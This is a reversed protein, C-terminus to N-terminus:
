DTELVLKIDLLGIPKWTEVGIPKLTLTQIGAQNVQFRGIPVTAFEEWSGTRTSRTEIRQDGLSVAFPTAQDASSVRATARYAGKKPINVSWSIWDDASRWYGISPKDAKQKQEVRPSSGHIEADAANLLLVGAEDAEVAYLFEGPEFARMKQGTIRLAWAHQCPQNAPLSVTLEQDTTQFELIGQHGLLEVKEIKGGASAVRALARLHLRRDEPWKMFFAYVQSEGKSTYRFDRSTYFAASENFHGGGGKAPGEGYIVWPRTGYIGEGNVNMWRGMEGLFEVEDNDLFGDPHLPLNLLLNGNKSVIDILMHAVHEPTKYQTGARYYWGGICTDTQWPLERMEAARGREIDQVCTADRFVGHHSEAPWKKICMAAQNSGGHWRSNANYYHSVLRRGVYGNDFPYSGDFYMLDPRYQDILDKVRLYWERKWSVPPNSPYRPSEAFPSHYLSKYKPDAGDYPVGALAGEKDAGHSTQFWSYSRALHTTVGFRIEHKAAADRFEGVLDRKPGRNVSNWEHYKSNWLDFNDHHVALIVAYKAGARKYMGVLKDFDLKKPDFKKILDKYGFRSPHGYTKVHYEYQKHGQIYMNRAYWDGQMPVCQPGIIAWIGFKADRFWDPCEYRELSDWTAEFSGAQMPGPQMPFTSWDPVPGEGDVTRGFPSGLISCLMVLLTGQCRPRKYESM